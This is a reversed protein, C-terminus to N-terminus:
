SPENEVSPPPPLPDSSSVESEAPPSIDLVWDGEDAHNEIDRESATPMERKVALYLLAFRENPGVVRAFAQALAIKEADTPDDDLRPIDALQTEVLDWNIGFKSVMLRRESMKISGIPIHFARPETTM